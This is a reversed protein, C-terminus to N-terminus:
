PLPAAAFQRDRTMAVRRAVLRLHPRIIPAIVRGGGPRARCARYRPPARRAGRPDKRPSEAAKLSPSATPLRSRPPATAIVLTTWGAMVESLAARIEHEKLLDVASTADDLILV